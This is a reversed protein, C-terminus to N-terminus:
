RNLSLALTKNQKREKKRSKQHQWSAKFLSYEEWKFNKLLFPNLIKDNSLCNVWPNQYKWGPLRVSWKFIKKPNNHKLRQTTQSKQSEMSQLRRPEEAWQRRGQCSSEKGSLWWPLDGKPSAMPIYGSLCCLTTNLYTPKTAWNHRVRQSGMSQLRGHEEAWPIMWALISFHTALGKELPDEWGLTWAWIEQM